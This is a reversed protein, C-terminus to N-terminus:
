FVAIAYKDPVEVEFNALVKRLAKLDVDKLEISITDKPKNEVIEVGLEQVETLNDRITKSAHPTAYVKLGNKIHNKITSVCKGGGM